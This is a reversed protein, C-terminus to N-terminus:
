DAPPYLGTTLDAWATGCPVVFWHGCPWQWSDAYIPAPAMVHIRDRSLTVDPVQVGYLTRAVTPDEELGCVPCWQPIV